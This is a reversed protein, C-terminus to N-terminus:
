QPLIPALLKALASEYYWAEFEVEHDSPDYSADLISQVAKGRPTNRLNDRVSQPLLPQITDNGIGDIYDQAAHILEHSFTEAYQNDDYAPQCVALHNAQFDYYGYVNNNQCHVDVTISAQLLPLLSLVISILTPMNDELPTLYM